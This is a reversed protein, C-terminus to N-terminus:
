RSNLLREANQYFIKYLLSEPLNLNKLNEIEKCQDAWPSDTGFLIFDSPHKLLFEKIKENPYWGFSFSTEMYIEKGIILSEVEEWQKWAGLHTTIFKLEPFKNLVKIIRQPSAIDWMPFSIDYGCHMVIFLNNEVLAEYIKFLQEDDISFSQYFPHMKIGLFGEKKIIKIHEKIEKDFPHVSPFPIIRDSRIKKSWNLIPNFQEPKTAINCIISKIIGCKDMLKLLSNLTGDLVAKVKNDKQLKAIAKDAIEDSFAHTHFDIIHM